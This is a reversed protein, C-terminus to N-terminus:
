VGSTYAVLIRARARPNCVDAALIPASRVGKLACTKNWLLSTPATEKYAPEHKTMDRADMSKGISVFPIDIFTHLYTCVYM